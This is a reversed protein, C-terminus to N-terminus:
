KNWTIVEFLFRLPWLVLEAMFVILM